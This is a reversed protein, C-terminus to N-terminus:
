KGRVAGSGDSGLSGVSSHQNDPSSSGCVIVWDGEEIKKPHLHHTGNYGGKSRLRAEKLKHLTFRQTM